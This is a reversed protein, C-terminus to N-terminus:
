GAAAELHGELNEKLIVDVPLAVRDPLPERFLLARSLRRVAEYGMIEPRQSLLFDLRGERLAAINGPILDYGVVRRGLGAQTYEGVSANPVFVGGVTPHQALFSATEARRRDVPDALKQELVLVQRGAAKAFASFGETRKQLHEDDEDFRVLVVPRGPELTLGLLKGALAGGEWPDQGVFCRGHHCEMDTDFFVLPFAPPLGEVLPRLVTSHIPALALAQCGEDLATQFAQACAAPSHRDFGQIRVALHLPELERAARDMGNWLLRWYGFDQDPQPVLVAITKDAGGSLRSAFVNPRYGRDAVIANIKEVNVASVRGRHHLVRDVTGISVGALRAIEKM